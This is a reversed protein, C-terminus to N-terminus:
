QVSRWGRVDLSLRQETWRALRVFPLGILLYIAGVLVGTGFFDYYTTSLQQYTRTLESITIMSVLSSDKLLSIFDNTMVPLVIRFAQPM